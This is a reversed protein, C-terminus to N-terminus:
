RVCHVEYLGNVDMGADLLMTVKEIDQRLTSELLTKIMLKDRIDTPTAVVERGEPQGEEVAHVRVEQTNKSCNGMRCNKGSM